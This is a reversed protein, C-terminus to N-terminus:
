KGGEVLEPKIDGVVKFITSGDENYNDRYGQDNMFSKVQRPSVILDYEKSVAQVLAEASISTEGAMIMQSLQIEIANSSTVRIFSGTEDKILITSEVGMNSLEDADVLEHQDYFGKASQTIKEKMIPPRNRLWRPIHGQAHQSVGFKVSYGENPTWCDYVRSTMDRVRKDIMDISQATYFLKVISGALKRRQMVFYGIEVNTTRQARRSDAYLYAEDLLLITHNLNDERDILSSAVDLPKSWGNPNSPTKWTSSLNSYCVWKAQCENDGCACTDYRGKIWERAMTVMLLTKGSGPPGTFAYVGHKEIHKKKGKANFKFPNFKM